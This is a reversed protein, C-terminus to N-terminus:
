IPRPEHWQYHNAPNRLFSELWPCPTRSRQPWDTVLRSYFPGCCERSVAGVAGSRGLHDIMIADCEVKGEITLNSGFGANTIDRDELTRIAFEAAEVATGGNRLVAMATNAADHCARLHIKENQYSHYGAGAHIFVAAMDGGEPRRRFPM